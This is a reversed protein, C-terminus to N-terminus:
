PIVAKPHANCELPLSSCGYIVRTEWDDFRPEELMQTAFLALVTQKEAAKRLALLLKDKSIRQGSSAFMVYDSECNSAETVLLDRMSIYSRSEPQLGGLQSVEVWPEPLREHLPRPKHGLTSIGQGEPLNDVIYVSITM